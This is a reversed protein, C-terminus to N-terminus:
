LEAHSFAFFLCQQPYSMVLPYNVILNQVISSISVRRADVYLTSIRGIIDKLFKM